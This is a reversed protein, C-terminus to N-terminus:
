VLKFPKEYLYYTEKQSGFSQYFRAVGALMSGEFDLQLNSECFQQILAVVLLTPLGLKKAEPTAVPLLYTIRKADKLWCLAAILKGNKQVGWIHVKKKDIALLM